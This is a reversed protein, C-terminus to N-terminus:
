VAVVEDISDPEVAISVNIKVIENPGGQQRAFSMAKGKFTFTTPSTDNEDQDNLELKFNYLAQTTDEAAAKLAQQGADSAKRNLVVPFEAAAGTGKLQRTYGDGVSELQVQTYNIGLEGISSIDGIEVWSPEPSTPGPDAIYLKSGSVTSVTPM